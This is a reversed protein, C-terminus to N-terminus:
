LMYSAPAAVDIVLVIEITTSLAVEVVRLAIWSTVSRWFNIEMYLRIRTERM